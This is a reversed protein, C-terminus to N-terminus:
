TRNGSIARLDGSQPIYYRILFLGSDSSCLFQVSLVDSIANVAIRVYHKRTEQRRYMQWCVACM